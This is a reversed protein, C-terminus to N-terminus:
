GCGYTIGSLLVWSKGKPCYCGHPKTSENMKNECIHNYNEVVKVKKVEKIEKLEKHQLM